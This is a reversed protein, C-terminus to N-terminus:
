PRVATGPAASDVKATDEAPLVRITATVGARLTNRQRYAPDIAIRVPIRQALKVWTYSPNINALLRSGEANERDTIAHAISQVRGDFREGSMLEVRARSGVRIGPLKTEEFYGSVYFSDRDVLALLPVGAHAYDGERTQLNTVYGSVPARVQTRELDLRAQQLAAEALEVNAQALGLSAQNRLLEAQALSVDTQAKENEEVSLMSRKQLASRRQPLPERLRNLAVGMVVCGLACQFREASAPEQSAPLLGVMVALRDIMRTEFAFRQAESAECRSMEAVDQRSLYLLRRLRPDARFPYVLAFVLVALVAAALFGGVFEFWQSANSYYVAINQPAVMLLTELGIGMAIGASLPSSLGVAVVYLLLAMWLALWEFDASAPLLVFLLAASILIALLLGRLFNQAALLPRPFTAMLSCMVGVLLLSSLAGNWASTIWLWAACSLAVFARVANMSALAWDLHLAQAQGRRYFSSAQRGSQIADNLELVEGLRQFLRAYEWRLIAVQPRLAPSLAEDYSEARTAAADFAQRVAQFEELVESPVARGQEALADLVRLARDLLAQIDAPLPGVWHARVLLRHQRLLLLRSAMLVLLNGLLQVLGDARRLNPADFYLHRRLGDLATISAVLQMQRQNFSEDGEDGRIVAAAHRATSRILGDVQAFYGKAVAQPRASLLSVLAVCAVGLLTETLRVVALMFTNEPDPISLVAVIVATFGSLVFAHSDTYRLLTGGATCLALWLGLAVFFPLPQQAFLAMILVAVVAGAFTGVVQAFSRKLAMGALPQSVIVVTMLAWKPQELDFLFALYLTLLGAAVTRLAFLLTERPPRWLLRAYLKLGEM